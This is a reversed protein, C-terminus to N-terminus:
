PSAAKKLRRRASTSSFMVGSQGGVPIATATSSSKPVRHHGPMAIPARATLRGIVSDGNAATMVATPFVSAGSSM